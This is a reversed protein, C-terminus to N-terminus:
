RGRMRIALECLYTKAKQIQSKFLLIRCKLDVFIAALIIHNDMIINERNEMSKRTDDTLM